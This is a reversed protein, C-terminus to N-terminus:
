AVPSPRRSPCVDRLRVPPQPREADGRQLVLNDLPGDDLHEVGHILRLEPAEGVPEPRPAVRMLRQIRQRDTDLPPPHAPYEVRIDAVEEALKIPIPQLPKELMPDRVRPHPAGFGQNMLSRGRSVRPHSRGASRPAQGRRPPYADFGVGTGAGRSRDAGPRSATAAPQLPSCLCAAAAASPAPWARADLGSVGGTRDAGM